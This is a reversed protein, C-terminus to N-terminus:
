AAALGATTLTVADDQVILWGQSVAYVCAAKFDPMKWDGIPTEALDDLTLTGGIRCLKGHVVIELLRRGMTQPTRKIRHKAVRPRDIKQHEIPRASRRKPDRTAVHGLQEQDAWNKGHTTHADDMVAAAQSDLRRMEEYIANIRLDPSLAAWVEPDYRAAAAEYAQQFTVMEKGGDAAPLWIV